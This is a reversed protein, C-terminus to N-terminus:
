SHTRCSVWALSTVRPLLSKDLSLWLKKSRPKPRWLSRCMCIWKTVTLIPMIPPRSPCTLGSHRSNSCKLEIVWWLCKICPLSDISFLTITTVYTGRLRTVLKWTSILGIRCSLYISTAAMSENLTSPEQGTTLEAILWRKWTSM